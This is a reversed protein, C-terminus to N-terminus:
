KELLHPKNDLVIYMVDNIYNTLRCNEEQVHRLKRKLKQHVVELASVDSSSASSTSKGTDKDGSLECLNVKRSHVICTEEWDETWVVTTERRRPHQISISPTDNSDHTLNERLTRNELRLREIEAGMRCLEQSEFHFDGNGHSFAGCHEDISCISSGIGSSLSLKSTSAMSSSAITFEDDNDDYIGTSARKRYSHKPVCAKEDDKVEPIPDEAKESLYTLILRLAVVAFRLLKAM